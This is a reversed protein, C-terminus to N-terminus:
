LSNFVMVLVVIYAIWGVYPCNVLIGVYWPFEFKYVVAIYVGIMILLTNIIDFRLVWTLAIAGWLVYGWPSPIIERSLFCLFLQSLLLLVGGVFFAIGGTYTLIKKVNSDKNQPAIIERQQNGIDM